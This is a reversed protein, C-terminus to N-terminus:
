SGELGLEGARVGKTDGEKWGPADTHDGHSDGHSDGHPSDGHDQRNVPGDIISQIFKENARMFDLIEHGNRRLDREIHDILSYWFICDKTRNRWDGDIATGPCQGKCAFFYKCDQCGGYEQPTFALALYRELSHSQEKLYDIGTKNTRGCNVISGEANIGHVAPTSLPDCATWICSTHPEDQTLLSRIDTFPAFSIRSSKSFDYIARFAEFNEEDSLALNDATELNDVELNHLNIWKVGSNEMDRFFDLTQPM